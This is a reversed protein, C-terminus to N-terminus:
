PLGKSPELVSCLPFSAWEWMLLSTVSSQWTILSIPSLPSSPLVVTRNPASNSLYTVMELLSTPTRSRARLCPSTCKSPSISHCPLSSPTSM